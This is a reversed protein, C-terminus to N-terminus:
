IFPAIQPKLVKSSPNLTLQLQYMHNIDMIIACKQLGKEGM